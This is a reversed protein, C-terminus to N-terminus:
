MEGRSLVRWNNLMESLIFAVPRITAGLPRFYDSEGIEERIEEVGSGRPLCPRGCVQEKKQRCTDM